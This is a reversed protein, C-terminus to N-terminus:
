IRTRPEIVLLAFECPASNRNAYSHRSDAEFMVAQNARVTEERSGINLTLVGRLVLAVERTGAPHAESRHIQGKPISWRWLEILNMLDLGFLLRAEGDGDGSWLNAADAVSIKEVRAEPDALLTQLTVGFANAIKCLIGISPNTSGKEIQALMGKSVGSREALGDLSLREGARLRHLNEGLTKNILTDSLEAMLRRALEPADAQRLGDGRSSYSINYLYILM